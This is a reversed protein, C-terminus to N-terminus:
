AQNIAKDLGEQIKAEIKPAMASLLFSLKLNVDVCEETVSVKGKAGKGDIKLEDGQWQADIGLKAKLGERLKDVRTRAEDLSFPHKRSINITSM